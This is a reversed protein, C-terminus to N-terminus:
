AKCQGKVAEAEMGDKDTSYVPYLCALTHLQGACGKRLSLTHWEGM